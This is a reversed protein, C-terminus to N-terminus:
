EHDGRSTQASQIEARIRTIQKSFRARIANAKMGLEQEMMEFGFGLSRLEFVKRTWLDMRRCLQEILIKREIEETSDSATSLEEAHAWELTKRNNIRKLEGLVLRRYTKFLYASLHDIGGVMEDSRRSVIAAAKFMLRM